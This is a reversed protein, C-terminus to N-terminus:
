PAGVTSALWIFQRRPSSLSQINPDASQAIKTAVAANSRRAITLGSKIALKRM